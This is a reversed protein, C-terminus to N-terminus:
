PAQPDFRQTEYVDAQPERPALSEDTPGWARPAGTSAAVPLRFPKWARAAPRSPPAATPAASPLTEISPAEQDADDDASSVSSLMEEFVPPATDLRADLASMAARHAPVASALRAARKGLDEVREPAFEFFAAGAVMAAAMFLLAATPGRRRRPITMPPAAVTTSLAGPESGDIPEVGEVDVEVDIWTERQMVSEADGSKAGGDATAAFLWHTSLTVGSIDEKIGRAVAWGALAEGFARMTRWRLAPDRSLARELIGGLAPDLLDPDIKSVTNPDSMWDRVGTIIELLTVGIAYVDVRHDANDSGAWQEPAMYCPTGAAFEIKRRHWRLSAIGFDLVKPQVRGSEERALIINEPKVDRHVIGRVHATDLADVVPLLLAVAQEAEMLGDREIRSRLDEGDLREFVIFPARGNAGFDLVRVIAPHILKATAQAERLLHLSSCTGRSMGNEVPLDCGERLLKIAVPMDLAVHLGMWVEGMAGEGIRRELRYKGGLLEGPQTASM